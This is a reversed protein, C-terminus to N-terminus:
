AAPRWDASRSRAAGPRRPVRALSHDIILSIMERGGKKVYLSRARTMRLPARALARLSPGAKEKFSTLLLDKAGEPSLIVVGGRAKLFFLFSPSNIYSLLTASSGAFSMVRRSCAHDFPSSPANAERM